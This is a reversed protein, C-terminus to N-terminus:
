KRKEYVKNGSKSYHYQGGRPGTYTPIGTATEGTPTEYFPNRDVATRPKSAKPTVAPSDDKDSTGVSPSDALASPPSKRAKPTPPNCVSCPSYQSAAQSLPMATSSKLYRCGARHYKTGSKTVYVTEEKEEPADLTSALGNAPPARPAASPPATPPEAEVPPAPQVVRPPHRFEWPATPNSDAWLGVKETRADSEAEALVESKSYQRYQWAWGERIMEKNIWRGDLFVQGLTRGYRDTEGWEVVVQKNFVKSSLAEKSKTGYAQHREPADISLLRIKKTTSHDLVTITDGDTVGVVRGAISQAPPPMSSEVFERDATSLKVLPM